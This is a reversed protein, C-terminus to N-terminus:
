RLQKRPGHLDHRGQSVLPKLDLFLRRGKPLVAWLDRMHMDDEKMKSSLSFDLRKVFRPVSLYLETKALTQGMCNRSGVSYPTLAANADHLNIDQNLEHGELWREPIFMDPKPFLVPDRHHVYNQMGVVTGPPLIIDTDVVELSQGLIRPLTSMIAPFVRYTEKIVASLYPLATLESLSDGAGELEKRLRGQIRRGEPRALAYTLYLFTHGSVGSGALLIGMAEELAERFQFKRGLHKNDADLLSAAGFQRKEDPDRSQNQFTKLMSATRREWEAFARYAHGLPGPISTRLKFTQLLPMLINAFFTPPSSELAKLTHITESPDDPIKTDTLVKCIIEIGWAGFMEYADATQTPSDTALKLLRDILVDTRELIESAHFRIENQSYTKAQLKRRGAHDATDTTKETYIRRYMRWDSLSVENPGVRVAPGHKNHLARLRYVRDNKFTSPVFYLSTVKALFPGPIRRLPHFWLRYVAKVLCNILLIGLIVCCVTAARPEQVSRGITETLSLM